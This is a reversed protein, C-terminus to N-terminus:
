KKYPFAWARVVTWLWWANSSAKSSGYEQPREGVEAIALIAEATPGPWKERIYAAVMDQGTTVGGSSWLNGDSVWRKDEWTVEPFIKKLEPVLARPGTVRKGKLIGSHGAPYVGTCVVLVDTGSDFHGKLFGNLAGTPKYLWPDPGPILLIDLTKEGGKKPPVCIKDSISADVRLGAKATCEHLTNPGAESVYLIEMPVVGAKLSSPLKLDSIYSQSLMGFLDIASLDLLQVTDILLVGIRTTPKPAM